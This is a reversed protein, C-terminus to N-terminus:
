LFTMFATYKYNTRNQHMEANSLSPHYCQSLLGWGMMYGEADWVGVPLHLAFGVLYVDPAATVIMLIDNFSFLADTM